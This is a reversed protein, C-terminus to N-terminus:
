LDNTYVVYCCCHPHYPPLGEIDAADHPFSTQFDCTDCPYSSGRFVFYGRKGSNLRAWNQMWGKAVVQALLVELATKSAIPKGKGYHLINQLRVAVGEGTHEKIWPNDYPHEMYERIGDIIETQSEIGELGAAAITAELEYGWRKTYEALRERFTKDKYPEKLVPAVFNSEDDKFTDIGEIRSYLADRLLALVEEVEKKLGPNASFRFSEPPINYRKAIGVIRRAASLLADSLTSAALREARLRLLLYDKARAIEQETPM